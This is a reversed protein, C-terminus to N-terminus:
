IPSFGSARRENLSAGIKVDNSTEPTPGQADATPGENGLKRRVTEPMAAKLDADLEDLRDATVGGRDLEERAADSKAQFAHLDDREKLLRSKEDDAAKFDEWRTRTDGIMDPAIIDGSVAQGREDFVQLGDRTKFVHRGDPLVHANGLMDDLRKQIDDLAVRNETLAEVTKDDYRDLKVRFATVQRESAFVAQLLEFADRDRKESRIREDERKIRQSAEFRAMKERYLIDEERMAAAFAFEKKLVSSIAAEM